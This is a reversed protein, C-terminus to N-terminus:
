ALIELNEIPLIIKEGNHDLRVEVARTSIGNPLTVKGKMRSIVGTSRAHLSHLVRVKQQQSLYEVAKPQSLTGSAPLPIVIEPQTGKSRDAKEANLCVERQEHSCLLKYTSANIAFQGFGELLIIPFPLEEAMKKLSTAMSGLILGRVPLQKAMDLVQTDRCFGALLVSGRQSMDLQDLKLELTPSSALNVLPGSDILGNGWVGQILSGTTEIVAGRDSLLETIEGSFGAQIIEPQEDFEILVQGGGTLIVKGSKPSRILKRTFGAPGAIVDGEAIKSGVECQIYQDVRDVPVGLVRVVDVLSYDRHPKYEGVPENANVKQGKRVLIRGPMPLVRERRILTLPLIHSVLTLM